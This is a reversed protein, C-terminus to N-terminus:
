YWFYLLNKKRKKEDKSSHIAPSIFPRHSQLLYSIHTSPCQTSCVTCFLYASMQSFQVSSFVRLPHEPIALKWRYFETTQFQWTQEVVDEKFIGTESYVKKWQWWITKSLNKHWSIPFKNPIIINSSINRDLCPSMNLVCNCPYPSRKFICCM